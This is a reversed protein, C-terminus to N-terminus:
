ILKNLIDSKKILDQHLSIFDDDLQINDYPYRFYEELKSIIKDPNYNKWFCIFNDNNSFIYVDKDTALFHWVMSSEISPESYINISSIFDYEKILKKYIKKGLGLGRIIKPIGDIIDIKNFYRKDIEIEPYFSYDDELSIDLKNSIEKLKKIKIEISEAYRVNYIDKHKDEEQKELLIQDFNLNQFTKKLDKTKHNLDNLLKKNEESKTFRDIKSIKERSLSHELVSEYDKIFNLWDIYKQVM